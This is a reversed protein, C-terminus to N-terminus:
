HWWSRGSPAPTGGAAAEAEGPLRRQYGDDLVSEVAARAREPSAPAGAGLALAAAVLEPSAITDADVFILYRGLAAAAGCNRARSIQNIPEFVVRAGHAAAVAATRDTSNNNAVVIEGRLHPIADLVRRLATLTRPLLEAENYAPVVISYDVPTTM